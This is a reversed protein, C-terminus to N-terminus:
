INYQVKDIHDHSALIVISIYVARIVDFYSLGAMADLACISATSTYVVVSGHMLLLRCYLPTTRALLTLLLFMNLSMPEPKLLRTKKQLISVLETNSPTSSMTTTPM